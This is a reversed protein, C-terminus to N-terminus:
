LHEFTGDAIVISLGENLLSLLQHDGKKVAFCFNQVFDELPPGVTKLNTLGLRNILQLALLKQVVVADHEGDSLQRLAEEFTTTTVIKDTLSSRRLFEEANDGQLVAVKKGKLDDLSRIGTEDRRVVITGHMKLYPFTFDFDHEREPTRGVLPLVEIESKVLKQKVESWPGIEFTVDRGMVKLSERLLEVSFGDAENDATVVAYPPYSYESASQVVSPVSGNSGSQALPAAQSVGSSFLMLVMFVFCCFTHNRPSPQRIDSM